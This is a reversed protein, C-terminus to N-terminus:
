VFGFLARTFRLVEITSLDKNKFWHFRLLDRDEVGIRVQLFTQKIGATLAIAKLRNRVLVNWFLNQVARGTKLCENLSPSDESPKASADDLKTTTATVRKM